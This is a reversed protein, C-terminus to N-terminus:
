LELMGREISVTVAATRDAVGLKVFARLLHTKVTAESIHLTRGIHANTAGRAVERLVAVERPTLLEAPPTRMRNFLRAAVAPALVTEGRAAARVAAVLEARPTDKLLYGNAGAEVAPLIDADSNFTTVVLINRCSGSAVIREIAVVGDGAPMRLDMLIVDPLLAAALDVAQMGGSAEAVVHMGEEAELMARLGLRVMQHDDVLMVRITV